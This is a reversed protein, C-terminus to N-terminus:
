WGKVINVGPIAQKLDALGRLHALGADTIGTKGLHVAYVKTLAAVPAVHEDKIAAGQLYFSVDKRDDSQALPRVSGGAKEIAAIAKAEPTTATVGTAAAPKAKAPAAAKAQLSFGFIQM